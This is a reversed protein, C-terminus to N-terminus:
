GEEKILLVTQGKIAGNYQISSQLIHTEVLPTFLTELSITDGVDLEPFGRDMVEYMNRKNLYRGAWEAFAVTQTESTLLSNELLVRDGTLNFEYSIRKKTVNLRYGNITLTGTGTLVIRTMRAFYEPTGVITLGAGAVAAVGSAMEHEVEITTSSAGVIAVEAIAELTSEPTLQHFYTDLGQLVPFKKTKPPANVDGLEMTFMEVTTPAPEIVVNGDVDDKLVCMAANAILQLCVRAEAVPLPMKTYLSSLASDLSWRPLGLGNLPINCFQLVDEALDYLSIDSPYYKGETYLDTLYNIISVTKFTVKPIVSQTEVQVEGSTFTNGGVFWEITGDNLEYGYSFKCPQEEELYQFIGLANEPDYVRTPDLFTFDMSNIPLKSNILDVSRNWSASVLDDDTFVKKVGFVLNQLRFRRYPITSELSSIEIKNCEPINDEWVWSEKADATKTQNYVELADNYAKVNLQAPYDGRHTDFDMTLGIFDFYTTLFAVTVVNPTTDTGDATSIEDGVYGQYVFPGEDPKPPLPYVGDLILRNHELTPYSELVDYSNKVDASNSYYEAGDDTLAADGIAEPDIVSFEIKIYSPNRLPQKIQTKYDASVTRM